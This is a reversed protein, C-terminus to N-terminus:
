SCSNFDLYIIAKDSKPKFILLENSHCNNLWWKQCKKHISGQRQFSLISDNQQNHCLCIAMWGSTITSWSWSIHLYHKQTKTKNQKKEGPLVESSEAPLSTHTHSFSVSLPLFCSCAHNNNQSKLVKLPSSLRQCAVVSSHRGCNILRSSVCVYACVSYFNFFILESYGLTGSVFFSSNIEDM